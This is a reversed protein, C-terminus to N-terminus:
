CGPNTDSERQIHSHQLCCPSLIDLSPQFYVTTTTTNSDRKKVTPLFQLHSPPFSAPLIPWCTHDPRWYTQKNQHRLPISEPAGAPRTRRRKKKQSWVQWNSPPHSKQCCVHFPVPKLSLVASAAAAAAASIPAAAACNKRRRIQNIGSNKWSASCRSSIQALSTADRRRSFPLPALLPYAVIWPNSSILVLYLRPCRYSEHPSSSPRFVRM